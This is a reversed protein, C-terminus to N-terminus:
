SLQLFERIVDHAKIIQHKAGPLLKQKDEEPLLKLTYTSSDSNTQIDIIVDRVEDLPCQWNKNGSLTRRTCRFQRLSKDFVLTESRFNSYLSNAGIMVLFSLFSILLLVQGRVRMDYQIALSIEKSALFRNIQNAIAQMAQASGRHGNIRRISDEIYNVEGRNTHLVVWHDVIYDGEDDIITNTKAEAAIVQSFTTKPGSILGLLHTQTRDCRVQTPEIRQCNLRTIGLGYVVICIIILPVGSLLLTGIMLCGSDILSPRNRLLLESPTRKLIKMALVTM